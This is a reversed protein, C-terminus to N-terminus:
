KSELIDIRKSLRQVENVLMGILDQYNINFPKGEKDLNVAHPIIPAAEEAILGYQRLDSADKLGPAADKNWTFSVPRLKYLADSDSGMDQIDNKFQASSVAVGLQNNTSVLVASGTVTIGTIGCIFASNLNGATGTGTGNGITLRNNQGASGILNAGIVINSSESSTYSGATGEGIIINNAGSTMISGSNAGVIVNNGGTLAAGAGFGIIVNLISAAGTTLANGALAGILTNAGGTTLLLGASYGVCTNSNASSIVNGALNGLAVNHIGTSISSLCSTGLGINTGASFTQTLTSGSGTFVSTGETNSTGTTITVTSGTVSGSNGNITTIGSSGSAAITITGAGNTVTIGTGATIAGLVPDAGTSGIPLQGNTASGIAVLASTGEGVLLSHATFTGAGTGGEVVPQPSIRKYGM